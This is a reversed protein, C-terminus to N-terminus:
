FIKKMHGEDFFSLVCYNYYFFMLFIIYLVLPSPKIDLQFQRNWIFTIGIVTPKRCFRVSTAQNIHKEEYCECCAGSGCRDYIQLDFQISDPSNM